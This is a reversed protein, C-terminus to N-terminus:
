KEDHQVKARRAEVRRLLEVAQSIGFMDASVATFLNRWEDLQRAYERRRYELGVFYVALMIASIIILEM